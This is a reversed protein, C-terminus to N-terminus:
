LLNDLWSQVGEPLRVEIHDVVGKVGEVSRAIELARDRENQSNVRGFMYVVRNVSHWRLNFSNVKTSDRLSAKLRNEISLDEAKDRLSSDEMVQIENVINGVSEASATIAGATDKADPDSVTGTLLVNRAYVEVTVNKLAGVEQEVFASLIDGRIRDDEQKEEESRDESITTPDEYFIPINIDCGTVALLTAAGFLSGLSRATLM